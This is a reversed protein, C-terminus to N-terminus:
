SVFRLSSEIHSWVDTETLNLVSCTQQVVVLVEYSFLTVGAVATSFDYCCYRHTEFEIECDVLRPLDENVECCVECIGVFEITDDAAYM